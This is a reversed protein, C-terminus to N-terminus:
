GTMVLTWALGGAAGLCMLAYQKRKWYFLFASAAAAGAIIHAGDAFAATMADPLLDIMGTGAIGIPLLVVALVVGKGFSTAIGACHVKAVSPSEGHELAAYFRETRIGNLRRVLSRAHLGIVSIAVGYIMAPIFVAMLRADDFGYIAGAGLVSATAVLSGLNNDTFRVTGLPLYGIWLTQFLLGLAVGTTVDGFLWGAVSCSVIPESILLQPGATTDMSVFGALALVALFPEM